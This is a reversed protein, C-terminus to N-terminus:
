NGKLQKYSWRVIKTFLHLPLIALLYVALATTLWDPSAAVLWAPIAHIAILIAIFTLSGLLTKM